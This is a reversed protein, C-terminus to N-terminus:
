REQAPRTALIEVPDGVRVSGWDHHVCNQGFLVKNGDRRYDALTRLPERSTEATQQNVGIIECRDCPKVVDLTLNGLQVTQWSDEAFAPCGTVVINPRFRDMGVKADLRGNLDALSAESLLLAPYGDAFGVQSDIQTHRKSTSRLQDEAWRVLRAPKGLLESFWHAADDGMDDAETEFKWVVARTRSQEGGSLPIKLAAKRPATLSLATPALAPKVQSLIPASRQTIMEGDADIVMFRRDLQPGRGDFRVGNLEIGACSKVPYVFLGSVTAISESM